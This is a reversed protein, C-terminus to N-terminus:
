SMGGLESDQYFFVRIYFLVPTALSPISKVTPSADLPHYSACCPPLPLSPSTPGPATGAPSTPALLFVPTHTSRQKSIVFVPTLIEGRRSSPSACVLDSLRSPCRPFTIFSILRLFVAREMLPQESYPRCQCVPVRSRKEGKRGDRGGRRAFNLRKPVM